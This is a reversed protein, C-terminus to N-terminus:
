STGCGARRAPAPRGRRRCGLHLAGQAAYALAARLWSSSNTSTSPAAQATCARPRRRAPRGLVVAPHAHLGQRTGTRARRTSAAGALDPASSGGSWCAPDATVCCAPGRCAARGRELLERGMDLADDEAAALRAAVLSPGPPGMTVSGGATSRRTVRPDRGLVEGGVGDVGHQAALAPRDLREGRGAVLALDHKRGPM